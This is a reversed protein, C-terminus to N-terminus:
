PRGSFGDCPVRRYTAGTRQEGCYAGTWTTSSELVHAAAAAHLLWSAAAAALALPRPAM